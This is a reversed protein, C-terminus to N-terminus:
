IYANKARHFIGAQHGIEDSCEKLLNSDKTTVQPICAVDVWIFGTEEAATELTAKFMDSSFAGKDPTIRPIRWPVGHIQIASGPQGDDARFRGWTFSIINYGPDKLSHYVNSGRDVQCEYSTWNSVHLLRRPWYQEVDELGIAQRAIM